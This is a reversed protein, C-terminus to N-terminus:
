GNVKEKYYIKQLGNEEDAIWRRNRLAGVTQKPNIQNGAYRMSETQNKEEDTM